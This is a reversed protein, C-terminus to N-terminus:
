IRSLNERQDETLEPHWVDVILVLRPSIGNHWVEHEFSDDFILWEGAKWTREETGVRIKAGPPVVLGLHARLRCNTPGCHPWVHTGPQMISFKVQGRKCTRAAPFTEIINCTLPTKACNKEIRYGRAFLELQKWNGKDRLSEAEDEYYGPIKMATLGEKQILEWNRQLISLEKEYTTEEPTWFPQAKLGNVNYLSRQLASPFLKLDAGKKYVEMAEEKEGLRYLADGLTFYFRGDQTGNAESAIGERLLAVASKLDNDHVKLIFGYHVQAFGNDRWRMLTHHLIYKAEAYRNQMLYTVALQNRVEPDNPFRRILNRHIPVAQALMGGFRLLQVCREGAERYIKDDAKDELKLVVRYAEIADQLMQNNKYKTSLRDLVKAKGYLAGPHGPFKLILSDFIQLAPKLNDNFLEENARRIEEDLFSDDDMFSQPGRVKTWSEEEEDSDYQQDPLKGYKEELRRMLDNDDVDSIDEDADEESGSYIEEEDDYEEEEDEIDEDEEIDENAVEEKQQEYSKPSRDRQPATPIPPQIFSVKPTDDFVIKKPEEKAPPHIPPRSLPAADSPKAVVPEIRKEPILPAAPPEPPKSRYMANLQEFTDPTIKEIRANEDDEDEEEIEESYQLEPDDEEEEEEGEDESYEDEVEDDLQQETDVPIDDETSIMTFRRKVQPPEEMPEKSDSSQTKKVLVLRAVFALALGVAVKVAIPASESEEEEQVAAAKAALEEQEAKQRLHLEEGADNDVVKELSAEDDDFDDDEEEFPADQDDEPNDDDDDNQEITDVEENPSNQNNDDDEENTQDNDDDNDNSNNADDEFGEDVDDNDDEDEMKIDRKSRSYATEEEVNRSDPAEDDDEENDENEDDVEEREEEEEDDEDDNAQSNDVGEDENSKALEEEEEGHDDDEEDHSDGQSIDHAEEDDQESHDEEEEFPASDHDDIGTKPGHDDHSARHEDVWGEFYESFRSESLPTDLDSSGRNELIIIGVLGFLIALLSFFFIKACWHGGTAHDSQVHLHVDDKGMKTAHVGHHHEKVDEEDKLSAKRTFVDGESKSDLSDRKIKKKDKRKRPQVDGSM